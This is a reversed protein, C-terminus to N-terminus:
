TAETIPRPDPWFPTRPSLADGFPSPGIDELAHEANLQTICNQYEIEFARARDLDGDRTGALIKGVAYILADICDPPLRPSDGDNTLLDPYRRYRIHVFQDDTSPARDFRLSKQIVMDALTVDPHGMTQGSDLYGTSSGDLVAVLRYTDDAQMYQYESNSPDDEVAHCARFVWKQLGSEDHLDDDTDQAYGTFAEVNPTNVVIKSGGWETSVEDSAPSPPSVLFPLRRGTSSESDNSLRFSGDEIPRRGLVHVVRYSFTGAPIADETTSGWPSSSLAVAPKYRPAQLSHYNGTTVAQIEGSESWGVSQRYQDMTGQGFVTLERPSSTSERLWVRDIKKVSPPLPYEKCYLRFALGTDTTNFWARDLVLYSAGLLPGGTYGRLVRFTHIRGSSDTIDVWRGDWEGGGVAQLGTLVVKRPDTSDADLTGEIPKQLHVRMEDTILAAPLDRWMRRLALNIADNIRDTSTDSGRSEYGLM